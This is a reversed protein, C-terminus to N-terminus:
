ESPDSDAHDDGKAKQLRIAVPSYRTLRRCSPCRQEIVLRGGVIRVIPATGRLLLGGREVSKILLAHQECNCRM